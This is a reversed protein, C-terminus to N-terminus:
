HQVDRKTSTKKSRNYTDDCRYKKSNRERDITTNRKKIDTQYKTKPCYYQDPSFNSPVDSNEVAIVVEFHNGDKHYLYIGHDVTLNCPSHKIWKWRVGSKSYVYINTQLLVSAAIIEIETGWTRNSKMQNAILSSQVDKVSSPLVNQVDNPNTEM